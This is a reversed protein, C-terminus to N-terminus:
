YLNALFVPKRSCVSGKGMPNNVKIHSDDFKFVIRGTETVQYNGTSVMGDWV